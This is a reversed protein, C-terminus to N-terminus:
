RACRFFATQVPLTVRFLMVKIGHENQLAESTYKYSFPLEEGCFLVQMPPRDTKNSGTQQMVSSKQLATCAQRSAPRPRFQTCAATTIVKCTSSMAISARVTTACTRLCAMVFKVQRTHKACERQIRKWLENTEVKLNAPTIAPIRDILAEISALEVCVCAAQM